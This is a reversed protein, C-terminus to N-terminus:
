EEWNLKQGCYKCCDFDWCQLRKIDKINGYLKKCNPCSAQGNWIEVKKPIQKELASIAIDYVEIDEELQTNDQKQFFTKNFKIKERKVHIAVQLRAIAEQNNM